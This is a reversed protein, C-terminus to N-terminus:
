PRARASRRPPWATGPESIGIAFAFDFGTDAVRLLCRQLSLAEFAQFLSLGIEIVPFRAPGVGANVAGGFPLHGRHKGFFFREQQWQRDFREAIVLVAFADHMQVSADFDLGGVVASGGPQIPRSTLTCHSPKVDTDEIRFRMLKQALMDALLTAPM